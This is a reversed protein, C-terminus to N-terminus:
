YIETDILKTVIPVAIPITHLEPLKVKGGACCMGVQHRMRFNSHEAAYAYNIWKELLWVKILATIIILM